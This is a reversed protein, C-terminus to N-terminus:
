IAWKQWNKMLTQRDPVFTTRKAYLNRSQVLRKALLCV